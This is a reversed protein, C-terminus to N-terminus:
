DFTIKFGNLDRRGILMPRKLNSRDSVSASTQIKKGSLYFTIGIVDRTTEGLASEFNKRMIINDPRLLGLKKAIEIDISTRYAGTDVKANVAVKEGSEDIVEVKEFVGVTRTQRGLHALSRDGFLERAIKIGQEASDVQLGEIRELRSLLGAQNALQIKLGPQANLELIKPITGGPKKISPQMVIDAGLYGLRTAEQAKIAMTMAQQWEPIQIGRVKRRTGPMYIIEKAHHIAHTTIGTALDIGAAVAGQFLNARGGSEKTPLRLMAMIPVKNFVIIRIDPTGEEAYREFLPHIRVREEIFSWDPLDNMSFRGELIDGIHLKIDNIDVTDGTATVWQGAYTGGHTIVMIGEGGLGNNPKVVFSEPLKTFDYRELDSDNKFVNYLRPVSIKAKRMASKTLLKSNAIQKGRKRNYKSTFRFNRANLGLIQNPKM